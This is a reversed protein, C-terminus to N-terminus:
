FQIKIRYALRFLHTKVNKKFCSLSQENRLQGPLINWPTAAAKDFFREGYTKTRIRPPKILATRQDGVDTKLQNNHM